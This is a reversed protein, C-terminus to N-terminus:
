KGLAKTVLLDRVFQEKGDICDTCVDPINVALEFYLAPCFCQILNKWPLSFGWSKCPTELHNATGILSSLSSKEWGCAQNM